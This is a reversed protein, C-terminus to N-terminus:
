ERPANLTMAGRAVNPHGAHGFLHRAADYILNIAKHRVATADITDEVRAVPDDPYFRPAQGGADISAAAIVTASLASWRALTGLCPATRMLPDADFPSVVPSTCGSAKAGARSMSACRPSPRGM